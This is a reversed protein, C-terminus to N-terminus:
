IAKLCTKSGRFQTLVVALGLIIGWQLHIGHVVIIDTLNNFLYVIVGGVLGVLLTYNGTKETTRLSRVLYRVICALWFVFASLGVVGTEVFLQFYLNHLHSAVILDRDGFNISTDNEPFRKIFSRYNGTGIGFILDDKVIDFGMSYCVARFTLSRKVPQLKEKDMLSNKIDLFSYTIAFIVFLIALLPLIRKKTKTLFSVLIMTLILSSWGSISLSLFWAIVSLIVFVGLMIRVRLSVSTMLMGFLVPVILNVYGALPNPNGFFSSARHGWTASGTSICYNIIGCTSVIVVTFVMSYLIIRMKKEENILNITLYYILFLELWRVIEKVTLALGTSKVASFMICLVFPICCYALKTNGFYNYKGIVSKFICILVSIALIAEIPYVSIFGFDTAGEFPISLIVFVVSLYPRYFIIGAIICVVCIACFGYIIGM